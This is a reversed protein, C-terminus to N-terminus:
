VSCLLELRDDHYPNKRLMEAVPEMMGVEEWGLGTEKEKRQESFCYIGQL